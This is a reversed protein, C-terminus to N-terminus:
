WGPACSVHVSTEAFGYFIGTSSSPEAWVGEARVLFEVPGHFPVTTVRARRRYGHHSGGPPPMPSSLADPEGPLSGILSAVQFATPTSPWPKNWIYAIEKKWVVELKGSACCGQVRLRRSSWASFHLWKQRAPPSYLARDTWGGMMTTQLCGHSLGQIVVSAERNRAATGRAFTLAPSTSLGRCVIDLPERGEVSGHIGLSDITHTCSLTGVVYTRRMVSLGLRDTAGPPDNRVFLYATSDAESEEHPDRRLWRGFHPSHYRYGYYYLNSERDAYKSSLIRNSTPGRHPKRGALGATRISQSHSTPPRASSAGAATGTMAEALYFGM